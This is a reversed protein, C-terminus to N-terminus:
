VGLVRFGLVRFGRFGRFGLVRFGLLGLGEFDTAEGLRLARSGSPLARGKAQIIVKITARM